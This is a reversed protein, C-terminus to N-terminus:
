NITNNQEGLVIISISTIDEVEVWNFSITTPMTSSLVNISRTPNETIQVVWAHGKVDKLLKLNGNNCFERWANLKEIERAYRSNMNRRLKETYGYIKHGTLDQNNKYKIHETVEGLLATFSSGDYNKQGISIKPYPGLTDWITISTNQELNEEEINCLFNWTNGTKFYVNDETTDEIDCISWQNWNTPIYELEGTDDRNQYILYESGTSTEVEISCLYHYFNNNNINYDYFMYEGNEMICVFDYYTQEPTRRYVTYNAGAAQGEPSFYRADITIDFTNHLITTALMTEKNVIAEDFSTTINQDVKIVDVNLGSNFYVYSQTAM